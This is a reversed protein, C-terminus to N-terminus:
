QNIIIIIILFSIILFLFYFFYCFWPPHHGMLSTQHLLKPGIIILGKSVKQIRLFAQQSPAHHEEGKPRQISAQPCKVDPHPLHIISDKALAAYSYILFFIFCPKPSRPISGLDWHNKSLDGVM